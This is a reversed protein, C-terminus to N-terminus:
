TRSFPEGDIFIEGRNQYVLGDLIMLFTKKGAGNPGALAICEGGLLDLNLDKLAWLLGYAKSLDRIRVQL